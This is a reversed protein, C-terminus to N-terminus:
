APGTAASAACKCRAPFEVAQSVFERFFQLIGGIIEVVSDVQKLGCEEVLTALKEADKADASIIARM